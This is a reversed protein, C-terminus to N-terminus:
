LTEGLWWDDDDFPDPVALPKTFMKETKEAIEFDLNTEFAKLQKPSFNSCKKNVCEVCNLGAYADDTGCVPCIM